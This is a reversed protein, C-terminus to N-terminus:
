GYFVEANLSSEVVDKKLHYKEMLDKVIDVFWESAMPSVYVSKILTNLDIPYLIGSNKKSSVYDYMVARVEHEHEFSLRKYWHVDNMYVFQTKYDIYNVMGIDISPDRNLAKYLDGYTTRIAIGQTLDKVYLKWMAESEIENKHWCNMYISSRHLNNHISLEEFLRDAEKKISEPTKFNNIDGPATAIAQMLFEKYFADYEPKKEKLGIACEFPDDFQDARAFYLSKKKILSIFKALDMFRWLSSNNDPTKYPPNRHLYKVKVDIQQICNQCAMQMNENKDYGFAITENDVFHSYCITCFRNNEKEFILEDRTLKPWM